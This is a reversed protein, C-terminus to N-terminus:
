EEGIKMQRIIERRIGGPIDVTNSKVNHVHVLQGRRVPKTCTGISAGYKIVQEGELIDALAIKNGFPIPEEVAMEWLLQNKQNYIRAQDGKEVSELATAVLDKDNMKMFRGM